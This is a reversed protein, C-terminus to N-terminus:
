WITTRQAADRAMPEGQACGFARAFAAVNALSGNIRWSPPSHPDTLTRFRMTEPRYLRRWGQAYGLFFRQEPTFGDILGPDPKGARSRQFADYAILVGGLDAINEGLTLEGNVHLTDIAVYASYQAVVRQALKGFRQADQETWWDRLNGTADYKRGQDDFGHTFEHGILTGLSGFNVADDENPVFRPAQLMGPLVFIGNVSPNYFADVVMPSLRWEDRDVPRGIKGLERHTGYAM